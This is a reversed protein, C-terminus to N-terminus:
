NEQHWLSGRKEMVNKYFRYTEETKSDIKENGSELYSLSNELIMYIARDLDIFAIKRIEDLRPLKKRHPEIYDAVYIIKELLSMNPRGTTHYTIASLIDVDEVGYKEKAYFAGVKAHLLVPNQMEVKTIPINNKKCVSLRKQHSLCKACDHLLGAILASKEDCGHCFALNAATYAVGLTHEFRKPELANKLKNQLKYIDIEQM